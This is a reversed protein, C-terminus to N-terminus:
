QAYGKSSSSGDRPLPADPTVTTTSVTQDAPEFTFVSGSAAALDIVVIPLWRGTVRYYDRQIFQAGSLGTSGRLYFFAELPIQGPIDDPWAALMIENWLSRNNPHLARVDISLQFGDPTAAFACSSHVSSGYRAGWAQVTDIGLAECRQHHTCADTPAGSTGADYPYACRVEAPVAVPAQTERFLFGHPRSFVLQTMGVDERLYSFSVGNYRHSNPSPNWAHFATTAEASRLLVGDCEYAANGNSCTTRTDDFRANLRSAVSYGLYLQDKLDFGFPRHGADSLDLRMIPLWEGTAQHFDRQDRQAASLGDATSVDFYLAQVALKQPHEADWSRVQLQNLQARWPDGSAHAQLSALFPQPSRASFSCQGAPDSGQQAFHAWWDAATAVGAGPCSAPDADQHGVPAQACGFDPRDASLALALPYACLVEYPKDQSIATFGDALIFGSPLGAETTGVDRRVYALSEAQLATATADHQWFLGPHNAAMPKILVGTCYYSPFQVACVAAEDQYRRNLLQAVEPGTLAHVPGALLALTCALLRGWLYRTM